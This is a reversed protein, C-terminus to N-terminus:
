IIVRVRINAADTSRFAIMTGRILYICIDNHANQATKKIKTNKILGLERFRKEMSGSCRIESVIGCEGCKLRSLPIDSKNM